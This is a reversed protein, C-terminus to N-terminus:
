PFAPYANTVLEDFQAEFWRGSVPANTLTLSNGTYTPDCMRDFGKGGPNDAGTPILSNSGGLEGPPQVWAYAEIGIMPTVALREGIGACRQNRWGHALLHLLKVTLVITVPLFIGWLDFSKVM